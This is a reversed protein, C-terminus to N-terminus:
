LGLARIKQETKRWTAVQKELFRLQSTRDRSFFHNEESALDVYIVIRTASDMDDESLGISKLQKADPAKNTNMVFELSAPEEYVIGIWNKKEDTYYGIYEKGGSLPKSDIGNNEIAKGLMNLLNQLSKVGEILQWSVHDMVIGKEELFGMFQELIYKSVDGEVNIKDLFEYIQLWRLHLDPQDDDKEHTISYRTLLCLFTNEYGSKDLASRYRKIQQVGLGSEAKVEIYVLATPTRIEIDPRGEDTSVQTSITISSCGKASVKIFGATLQKLLKAAAAQEHELLFDLLHVFAETLFNEDQRHAWHNLRSLLNTM